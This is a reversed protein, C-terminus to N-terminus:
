EKGDDLMVKKGDDYQQVVVNKGQVQCRAIAYPSLEAGFDSYAWRVLSASMIILVPIMPLAVLITSTQVTKLGGVSLLGIGVLALMLTWLIRNWRAPEEYGTLEKTCISALMYASSDVTTALFVFCLLTFLPIVLWAVPLTKLIAVVTAPIGDSSLIAQLDVAGSLQLDIAYGGWIAFFAWCGLTGWVVGNVIINKITRGRSIRAVFLGMMPAYAIWWAWYFITWSEPFGGKAVPDTWFNIRFFNDLFLGVSNTWLNLLFITPGVILVFFLLLFGLAANINSLTQIGKNLGNYVSWAIMATWATLIGMQLGFSDALGFMEQFLASVLPVSLGLSTGVGGVISFIVIVDILKGIPGDVAKGLIGRCAESLRLVNVKRVYLVYAMPLAPMLYLAWPVVGWHFMPYMAAWEAAETTGGEIGLPPGSFLYLPEVFAWNCISIGIGACFLMSIWPVTKFEPQEDPAGMKIRGLPGYALWVMFLFSGIGTLLYLWGFTGTFSSLLGDVAAKGAEPYLALPISAALIAILSSWFIGPDITLKKNKQVTNM